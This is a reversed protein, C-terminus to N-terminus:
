EYSTRDTYGKYLWGGFWGAIASGLAHFPGLLCLYITGSLITAGLSAFGLIVSLLTNILTSILWLRLAASRGERPLSGLDKGERHAIQAAISGCLIYIVVLLPISFALATGATFYHIADVITFPLALLLAVRSAPLFSAFLASFRSEQFISMVQNM